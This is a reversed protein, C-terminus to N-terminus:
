YFSISKDFYDHRVLKVYYKERRVSIEFKGEFLTAKPMDVFILIKKEELLRFEESTVWLLVRM